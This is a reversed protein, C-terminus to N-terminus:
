PTGHIYKIDNNFIFSLSLVIHLVFIKCIITLLVRESIYKSITRLLELRWNLFLSHTLISWENHNQSEVIIKDTAVTGCM